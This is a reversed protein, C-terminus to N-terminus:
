LFMTDFEFEFNVSLSLGRFILGCEVGSLSLFVCGFEFEFELSSFLGCEM